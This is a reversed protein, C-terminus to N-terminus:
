DAGCSKGVDGYWAKKIGDPNTLAIYAICLADDGGDNVAIYESPQAGIGKEFPVKIDIFAGDKIKDKKGKVSGVKRGMINYLAVGPMNGATDDSRNTSLGAAIRVIPNHEDKDPILGPIMMGISVIGALAGIVEIVATAM